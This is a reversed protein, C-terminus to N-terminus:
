HAFPRSRERGAALRWRLLLLRETTTLRPSIAIGNASPGVTATRVAPLEGFENVDYVSLHSAAGARDIVALAGGATDIDSPAGGTPISAAVPNDVFINSGTGILRSITRSSTNATFLYKDFRTM